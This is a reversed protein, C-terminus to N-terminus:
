ETTVYPRKGYLLFRLAVESGQQPVRLILSLPAPRSFNNDGPERTEKHFFSYKYPIWSVLIVRFYSSKESWDSLFILVVLHKCCLLHL